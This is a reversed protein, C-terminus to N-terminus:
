YRRFGADLPMRDTYIMTMKNCALNNPVGKARARRYKLLM